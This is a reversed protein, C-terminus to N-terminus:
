ISGKNIAKLINVLVEDRTKSLEEITRGAAESRVGKIIKEKVEDTLKPEGLSSWRSEQSAGLSDRICM